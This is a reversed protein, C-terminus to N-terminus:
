LSVTVWFPQNYFPWNYWHQTLQSLFLEESIGAPRLKQLEQVSSRQLCYLHYSM